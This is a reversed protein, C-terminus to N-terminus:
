QLLSNLIERPSATATGQKGVVIGGAHNSFHAAEKPSAGAAIALTFSAIVTDGAGSVDFVERAITPIHVPPKGKQCLLMGLDGLTILLIAPRLRRLLRNAAQRLNPDELPDACRTTDSVGALEFAERRNPTILSFGTLDVAHAPKPDLSLWIGRRHCEGKLFRLLSNNIIGKAYDGIIVAAASPLAPQIVKELLAQEQDSLDTLTERDVRVIQQQQSVIRTKTGTGRKPVVRLGRCQVRDRELLQKLARGDPDRGILSFLTTQARLATLNRAVNAAGGPMLSESKFRLVPVPAEPSIRDVSGTVFRDLMVDGVVLIHTQAGQDLIAQARAKDFGNPSM